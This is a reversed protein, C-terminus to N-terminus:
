SKRERIKKILLDVLGGIIIGIVAGTILALPINLQYIISALLGMAACFVLFLGVFIYSDKNYM